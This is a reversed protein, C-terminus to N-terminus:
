DSCLLTNLGSLSQVVTNLLHFGHHVPSAPLQPPTEPTEPKDRRLQLVARDEPPEVLVHAAVQLRLGVADPARGYPLGETSKPLGLTRETRGSVWPDVVFSRIETNEFIIPNQIESRHM